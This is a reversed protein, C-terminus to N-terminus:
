TFARKVDKGKEKTYAKMASTTTCCSVCSTNYAPTKYEKAIEILSEFSVHNLFHLKGDRQVADYLNATSLFDKKLICSWHCGLGLL